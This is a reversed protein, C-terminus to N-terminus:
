SLWKIILKRKSEKILDIGSFYKSLLERNIIVNLLHNYYKARSTELYFSKCYLCGNINGKLEVPGPCYLQGSVRTGNGIRLFATLGASKIVAGGSLMAGKGLSIMLTDSPNYKGESQMVFLQSPYILNCSDEIIISQLAFAQFNGKFGERVVIKPAFVIVDKLSCTKDIILKKPSWIVINGSFKKYSLANITDAEIIITKAAFSNQINQEEVSSVEMISDPFSFEGSLFNNAFLFIGSNLGPILPVSNKVSGWVTNKYIYQQGEISATRITKGPLYCTGVLRTKGSVSLFRGDDPMYLATSDGDSFDSGILATRSFSKNKWRANAGIITYAGWNRRFLKVKDDKEDYLSISATDKKQFIDHGALVFKLASMVNMELDGQKSIDVLLRNELASSILILGAISSSLIIVLISYYLAGGKFRRIIFYKLLLANM